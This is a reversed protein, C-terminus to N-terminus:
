EAGMRREDEVREIDIGPNQAEIRDLHAKELQERLRDNEAELSGAYNVWYHLRKVDIVGGDALAAAIAIQSASKLSCRGCDPHHYSHWEGCNSLALARYAAKEARDRGDLQEPSDTM